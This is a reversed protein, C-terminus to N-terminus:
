KGVLEDFIALTERAAKKWLFNEARRLGDESMQKRLADDALIQEIVRAINQSDRPDFFRGAAGLVEPLSSCNSAAVPTGCAMAEMAPLGFGEELSPFTLLTAANYLYALDEDAVFGTFVVKNELGMETVQKKLAPYASFFPDDKYDGVLVLKLKPLNKATQEFADILASLNKHPSIGGVYLLFKEGPQLGHRALTENMEAGSPLVKFVPRAAESIIRLRSEPLRFYEVIQRKSYESVTAILNAQRIAANQKAKWFFKSKADPFILEPHHDAIVDHITVVIKTRNFIPFYSYVAPFFFVDMKHRLVERSMAWLDKVSRRGDAAAAKVPPFETKAAITKVNAPLVDASNDTNGDVFFLYENTTDIQLLADLLENTFRGFGRKNDRCTADVGIRMFIIFFSDGNTQATERAM